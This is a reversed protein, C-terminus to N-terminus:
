DGLETLASASGGEVVTDRNRVGVTSGMQNRKVSLPPGWLDILSPVM